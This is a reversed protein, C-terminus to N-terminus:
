KRDTRPPPTHNKRVEAYGNELFGSVVKAHAQILKAVHADESTEVVRVGNATKEVKMSIKDKHRFIERFLPDRMHIPRGEKIRAHMAAAHEQIKAAVEKDKSETLTEVGGPLDKVERSIVKRNDLLYHFVKMDAQQQAQWGKSASTTQKKPPAAGLALLLPSFAILTVLTRRLVQM